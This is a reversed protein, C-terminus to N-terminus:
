EQQDLQLRVEKIKIREERVDLLRKREADVMEAKELLAQKEDLEKQKMNLVELTKTKEALIKEQNLADAKRNDWEKKGQEIEALYDKNQALEAEKARLEINTNYVYEKERKVKEGLSYVEKEKQSIDLEKDSLEHEKQDLLKSKQDYNILDSVYANMANILNEMIVKIATISKSRLELDEKNELESPHVIHPFKSLDM